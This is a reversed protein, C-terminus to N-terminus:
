HEAPIALEALSESAIERVEPHDDELAAQLYPVAAENGTLSLYHYADIRTSLNSQQTLAVLAPVCDALLGTDQLGEIVAGVGIRVNIRRQEDTLLGILATLTQPHRRVLTEVRAMQGDGLLHDYFVELADVATAQKVWHSIEAASYAGEFELENLQFWPVTRVGLERARDTDQAINIVELSAIQGDKVLETLTTLVVPCHACGPAILLTARVPQSSVATNM